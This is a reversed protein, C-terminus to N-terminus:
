FRFGMKLNYSDTSFVRNYEFGLNLLLLNANIGLIFQTSTPSSEAKQSSTFGFITGTTAGSVALSGTASVTGIGIYPEFFPLNPSALLQIGFQNNEQKVDVAVPVNGTSANNLTQGFSMENKTFFARAALNFPLMLVDGSTWKISGGFQQYKIDGVSVSPFLLAEFTFGFPVSVGALLSAHPLQGMNATSDVQKSLKNIEASSTVGGVFGVELGFITGLSGAGTVSHYSSNGSLERIANDFDSQTLNNFAPGGAYVPLSAITAFATLTAIAAVNLYRCIKVTFKRQSQPQNTM